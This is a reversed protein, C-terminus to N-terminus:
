HDPPAQRADQSSTLFAILDRLGQDGIAGGLGVPMISTASPRFEELEGRPITTSKGESDIVRLSEAGEARVIGAFVRGDKLAITYSVYDPHIQASPEIIARYVEKRDRGLMSSLDPGVEGGQGKVKHCTACKSEASAFVLAGRALDGGTLEPVNALAPPEGPSTPVWPLTLESREVARERSSGDSPQVTLGISLPTPVKQTPVALNLFFPVGSSEVDFEAPDVPDPELGDLTPSGPVNSRVRVKWAGEPLTLLSTLTLTGRTELASWDKRFARADGVARRAMAPDFGPWWGTWGPTEGQPEWTIEVGSLEYSLNLGPAELSYRGARPHPDTTLVLTSGIDALRAAAVRLKGSPDAKGAEKFSILRGVLTAPVAPDIPNEFAVRVEFPGAAWTALIKPPPESRAPPGLEGAVVVGVAVLFWSKRMRIRAVLDGGRLFKDALAQHYARAFVRSM